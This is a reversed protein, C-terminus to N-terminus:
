MEVLDMNAEVWELWKSITHARRTLTQGTLTSNGKLIEVLDNKTFRKNQDVSLNYVLKQIVPFELLLKAFYKKQMKISLQVYKKGEDTLYYHNRNTGVLGLIEAAKIYYSSQRRSFQFHTAIRYNTDVGQSVLCPIEMIKDLDDAQPIDSKKKSEIIKQYEQIAVEIADLLINSQMGNENNSKHLLFLKM